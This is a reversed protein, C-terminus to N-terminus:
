QSSLISHSVKLRVMNSNFYQLCVNDATPTVEKLRVMNSNFNNEIKDTGLESNGKLRVM